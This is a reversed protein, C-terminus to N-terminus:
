SRDWLVSGSDPGSQLPSLGEGILVVSDHSEPITTYQSNLAPQHGRHNLENHPRLSQGLCVKELLDQNTRM